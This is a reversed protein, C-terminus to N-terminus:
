IAILWATTACGDGDGDGVGEGVGAPDVAAVDAADAAVVDAPDVVPVDDPDAAAVVDVPDVAAVDDTNVATVTDPDTHDVNTPGASAVDNIDTAAELDDADTAAVDAPDAAAAVVELDVKCEVLWMPTMAPLTAPPTAPPTATIAMTRKKHMRCFRFESPWNPLLAWSSPTAGMCGFGSDNEGDGCDKEMDLGVIVLELLRLGVMRFGRVVGVVFVAESIVWPLAEPWGCRSAASDIGAGAVAGRALTWSVFSCASKTFVRCLLFM